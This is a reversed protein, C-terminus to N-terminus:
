LYTKHGKVEQDGDNLMLKPESKKCFVTSILKTVSHDSLCIVPCGSFM